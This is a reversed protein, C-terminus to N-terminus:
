VPTSPRCHVGSPARMSTRPSYQPAIGRPVVADYGAGTMQPTFGGIARQWVHRHTDVFGPIVVRGTADIVEADRSPASLNRAVAVIQDDRVLIDGSPLDGASDDATVVYGDRLLPEHAM